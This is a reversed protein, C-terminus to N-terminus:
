QASEPRKRFLLQLVIAAAPLALQVFFLPLVKPAAHYEVCVNTKFILLLLLPLILLVAALSVTMVHAKFAECRRFFVPLLSLVAGLAVAALLLLYLVDVCQMRLLERLSFSREQFESRIGVEAGNLAGDIALGSGSSVLVFKVSEQGSEDPSAHRLNTSLVYANESGPAPSLEPAGKVYFQFPAARGAAEMVDIPEAALVGGSATVYIRRTATTGDDNEVKIENYVYFSVDESSAASLKWDSGAQESAALFYGEEEGGEVRLAVEGCRFVYADNASPVATWVLSADASAIEYETAGAWFSPSCFLLVSALLLAIVLLAGLLQKPELKKRSREERLITKRKM